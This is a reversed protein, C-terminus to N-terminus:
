FLIPLYLIDSLIRYDLDNSFHVFTTTKIKSPNNLPYNEPVKPYKSIETVAIDTDYIPAQDNEGIQAFLIQKMHHNTKLSSGVKAVGLQRLIQREVHFGNSRSNKNQNTFDVGTTM